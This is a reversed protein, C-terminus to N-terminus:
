ARGEPGNPVVHTWPRKMLMGTVVQMDDSSTLVTDLDAVRCGIMKAMDGFARTIKDVVSRETEVKSAEDLVARYWAKEDDSGAIRDDAYYRFRYQLTWPGGEDRWLAGHLDVTRGDPTAGPGVFWIAAFYRGNIFEITM